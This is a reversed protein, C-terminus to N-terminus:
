KEAAELAELLIDDAWIRLDSEIAERIASKLHDNEEKLQGCVGQLDYLETELDQIRLRAANVEDCLMGLMERPNWRIGKKDVFEGSM